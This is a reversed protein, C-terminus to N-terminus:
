LAARSDAVADCIVHAATDGLIRAMDEVMAMTSMYLKKSFWDRRTRPKGSSKYPASKKGARRPKDLHHQERYDDDLIDLTGGNGRRYGNGVGYAQYLGYRLFKMSIQSGDGLSLISSQFSEHFAGTDRIHMNEVKERWIILQEETWAHIYKDADNLLEM